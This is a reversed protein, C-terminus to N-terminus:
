KAAADRERKKIVSLWKKRLAEFDESRIGVTRVELGPSILSLHKKTKPSNPEVTAFTIVNGDRAVPLARVQELARLPFGKLLEIDVHSEFPSYLPTGRIKDIEIIRNALIKIMASAAKSNCRLLRNLVKSSLRFARVLTIAKASATRPQQILIALEGLIAGRSLRNLEFEMKLEDDYTFVSVTGESIFYCADAPGGQKIFIQGKPINVDKLKESIIERVMPPLGSFLESSEIIELRSSM